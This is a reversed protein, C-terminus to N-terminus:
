PTVASVLDAAAPLRGIEAPSLTPNARRMATARGLAPVPVRPGRALFGALVSRAAGPDVAPYSGVAAEALILATVAADLDPDDERANRWDIVVPGRATLMVNDPHLDLHVLRTGSDPGSPSPLARLRTLADALIGAAEAPAMDGDILATLMTPGDLREMVMDAGDASRVEPVPYGLDWLYRMLDAEAETDGGDRYRRLVWRGDLAFVDADRGSALPVPSSM